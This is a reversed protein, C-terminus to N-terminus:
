PFSVLFNGLHHIDRPACNPRDDFYPFIITSNHIQWSCCTTFFQTDHPPVVVPDPAVRSSICLQFVSFKHFSLFVTTRECGRHLGASNSCNQLSSRPCSATDLHAYSICVWGCVRLATIAALPVGVM